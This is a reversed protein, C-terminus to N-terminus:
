WSIIGIRHIEGYRMKQQRDVVIAFSLLSNKYLQNHHTLFIVTQYTIIKM